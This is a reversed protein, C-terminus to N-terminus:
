SRPKKLLAEQSLVDQALVLPPHLLMKCLKCSCKCKARDATVVALHQLAGRFVAVKVKSDELDQETHILQLQLRDREALTREWEPQAERYRTLEARDLLWRKLRDFM